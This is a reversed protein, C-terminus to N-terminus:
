ADNLLYAEVLYGAAHGTCYEQTHGSGCYNSHGDDGGYANDDNDASVAGNYL